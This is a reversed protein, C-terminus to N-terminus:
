STRAAPHVGTSDLRGSAASTPPTIRLRRRIASVPEDWADEWREPFLPAARLGMAHGESIAALLLGQQEPNGVAYRLLATAVVVGAMPRNLQAMEFAKQGAEGVFTPHFGLVVHWIDHTERIRALVYTLDDVVEIPEYYEPDLANQDLYRAVERALSGEPYTRLEDVDPPCGRLHRDAIARALRPDAKLNKLMWASARGELLADEVRYIAPIAERGSM